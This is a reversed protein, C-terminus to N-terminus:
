RIVKMVLEILGALVVGIVINPVFKSYLLARIIAESVSLGESSLAQDLSSGLSHFAAASFILILAIAISNLIGVDGKVAGRIVNSLLIYLTAGILGLPVGLGLLSVLADGLGMIKYTYYTVLAGGVTLVVLLTLSALKIHTMERLDEWVRLIIRAVFDELNFGKVIMILGLFLLSIKIAISILNFLLLLATIALIFGPIGLVYRSYRPDGLAKKAYRLLLAYSTEVGTHQEVIVRKVAAIPAIDGLIEAVMVEDLGDGVIYLEVPVSYGKVIERVREKVKLQAEIVDRRDGGVVVIDADRGRLKLKRYLSLGTFIANLDADEPREQSYTLAAKLVEDEGRIINVGLVDSIDNDIDVVVVLQKLTNL